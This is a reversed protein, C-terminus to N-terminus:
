AADDHDDEVLVKEVCEIKGDDKKFKYIIRESNFVWNDFEGVIFYGKLVKQLDQIINEVQIFNFDTRDNRRLWGTLRVETGSCSYQCETIDVAHRFLVRRVEKNCELRSLARM